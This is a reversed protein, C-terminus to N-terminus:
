PAGADSAPPKPEATGGDPLTPPKDTRVVRIPLRTAVRSVNDRVELEAELCDPGLRRQKAFLGYVVNKGYWYGPRITTVKEPELAVLDFIIHPVERKEGCARINVLELDASELMHSYMVLPDITAGILVRGKIDEGDYSTVQFEAVVGRLPKKATEQSARNGPTSACAGTLIFLALTIQRIM